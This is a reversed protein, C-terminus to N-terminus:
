DFMGYIAIIAGTKGVAYINNSSDITHDIFNLDTSALYVDTMANPNNGTCQLNVFDSIM